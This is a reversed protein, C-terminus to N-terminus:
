VAERHHARKQSGDALVIRRDAGKTLRVIETTALVVHFGETKLKDVTIRQAGTM